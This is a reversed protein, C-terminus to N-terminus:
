LDTLLKLKSYLQVQVVELNRGVQGLPLATAKVGSTIPNSDRGSGIKETHIFNFQRFKSQRSLNQRSLHWMVPKKRTNYVLEMTQLLGNIKDPLTRNQLSNKWFM